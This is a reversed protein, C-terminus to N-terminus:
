DPPWDAYDKRFMDIRRVIRFGESEYLRLAPGPEHDTEVLVQRAGMEAMRRFQERLLVRGLGLGRYAEGVGLPEIQGSENLHSARDQTAVTGLWGICFAALKGQPDTVVLDLEPRYQEQSRTNARWVETMNRTGFVAQHLEVYAAVERAGDLARLHFGKPLSLRELPQALNRM